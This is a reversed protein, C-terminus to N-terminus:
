GEVDDLTMMNQYELQAAISAMYMANLEDREAKAAKAEAAEAKAKAERADCFAEIAALKEEPTVCESFDCGEQTYDAVMQGLTNCYGGNLEGGALVITINPLKAVPYRECWQDATLVEGVHTLIPDHKNWIAYRSM